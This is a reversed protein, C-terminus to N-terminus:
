CRHPQRWHRSREYEYGSEPSSHRDRRCASGVKSRRTEELLEDLRRLLARETEVVHERMRRAKTLEKEHERKTRRDKECGSTHSHGSEAESDSESWRGREKCQRRKKEKERTERSKERQERKHASEELERVREEIERGERKITKLEEEVARCRRLISNV